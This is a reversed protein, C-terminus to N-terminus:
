SILLVLENKVKEIEQDANIVALKGLKEFFDIMPKTMEDYVKLRHSVVEPMDDDRQVVPLGTIDCVGEKKPPSTILNYIYKGDASVRRNILRNYLVSLDVKFHVAIYDYDLMLNKHFFSAQKLNRPFGDFIYKNNKFNLNNKLITLRISLLILM